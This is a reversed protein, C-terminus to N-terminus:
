DVMIEEADPFSNYGKARMSACYAGVDYIRVEDGITAKKLRRTTIIEPNGDKPTLIDGSECNHGVVVYDEEIESDNIVDIKHQAGYLTPRLVDNMGTNLRLFKFGNDGTDVIDDVYAVLTGAHAVTYAGPEIELKLERGTKDKFELLKQSFVEFISKMDAEREDGYRHVKFGGGIDLTDADPFQKIVGLASDIMESWISPDAGSGIHIHIRSVTINNNKTLEIIERIYKHWIGFSSTIGGTSTRNNGGAGFGSNIRVCLNNPHSKLNIFQQIQNLSTAVYLVGADILEQLNHASQQSSLSIKKGEVGQELLVTAEYASSADFHLDSENMFSIIEPHPNAKIAYRVLLGYPLELGKLGNVTQQLCAISYEYRPINM